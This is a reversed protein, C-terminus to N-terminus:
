YETVTVTFRYYIFIELLIRVARGPPLATASGTIPRRAAPPPASVGVVGDTGAFIRSQWGEEPLLPAEAVTVCCGLTSFLTFCWFFKNGDPM